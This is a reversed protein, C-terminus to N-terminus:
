AGGEHKTRKPESAPKGGEALFGDQSDNIQGNPIVIAGKTAYLKSGDVEIRSSLM